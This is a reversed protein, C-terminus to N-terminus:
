DAQFRFSAEVWAAIPNGERLASQYLSKRACSVAAADLNPYGSSKLIKIESAQGTASVFVSLRVSGEQKARQASRPYDLSARKRYTVPSNGSGNGNGRGSGKANGSGDGTGKGKGKALTPKSSKKAPTEAKAPTEKPETPTEVPAAQEVSPVPDPLPPLVVVAVEPATSLIRKPANAPTKPQPVKPKSLVVRISEEELSSTEGSEGGSEVTPLPSPTPSTLFAFAGLAIGHLLLSFLLPGRKKTPKM